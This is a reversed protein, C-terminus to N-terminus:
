RYLFTKHENKFETHVIREPQQVLANNTDM